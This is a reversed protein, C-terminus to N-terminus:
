DFVSAIGELDIGEKVVRLDHYIIAALVANFSTTVGGVVLQVGALVQTFEPAHLMAGLTAGIVVGVLSVVILAGFIPWRYGETLGSSRSISEIPGLREVVCAPLTVSLMTIAIFGPVILLIFGVITLLGVVFSAIVVPGLRQLGRAISETPSVRRGRLAQFTGYVVMAQCLASLLVSLVIPIWALGARHGQDIWAFLLAPINAIVGILFFPLFNGFMVEISRSLVSGVRFEAPSHYEPTPAPGTIM